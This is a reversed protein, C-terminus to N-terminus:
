EAIPTRSTLILAEPDFNREVGYKNELRVRGSKTKWAVCPYHFCDKKMGDASYRCSCPGALKYFEVTPVKSQRPKLKPNRPMM